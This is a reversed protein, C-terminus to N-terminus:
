HLKYTLITKSDSKTILELNKDADLKTLIAESTGYVPFNPIPKAQSDFLYVKKAQMDTTTVYIKDNLYFIKPNTYDGYELDVTKFRIQLKNENLTVLTKTTADISHGDTLGLQNTSINGKTNVQVLQGLTNTTTFKNQYLYIPNKSFRIKDKVVVRSAGRRNLIKLQEGAGFVIYDKSGLRFHKPQTLITGSRDKYNFGSVNKANTNYMLLNNAQTVLLRYDRKKDYDFVSLPQTIPDNFKLPFPGVDNGNRDLVYVRKSTAFVLQLRGNKYIDIQEIEGLINDQLKKKWLINGSSSILYLNNNSDQIAIDKTKNVHNKLVQPGIIIDSEISTNFNESITNLARRRKYKQIIGNIHAYDDEYIYQVVNADYGTLNTKFLDSLSESNKYIFMSSEDSLNEQINKFAESNVLTNNSLYDSLIQKLNDLSNSFVVFDDKAFFYSAENFSFLPKFQNAFFGPESFNYIDIERFSEEFAKNDITEIILDTDLSHLILANDILAIENSYTLFSTQSDIAINSSDKINKFLKSYDDFSISKLEKINYPAIRPSNTKQPLISKFNSLINNLTDKSSIVGNYNLSGSNQNIDIVAFEENSFESFLLDSYKTNNSKFIVSALSTENTTEILDFLDNPMDGNNLKTLLGLNNSAIFVDNITKYYFETSDIKTNIIESNSQRKGNNYSSSDAEFLKDKNSTLILFDTNNNLTELFSIYIPSPSNIKDLVSEVKKIDKIYLSFLIPNTELGIKFDNIANVKIILASTEPIFHYPKINKDYNKQCSVILTCVLVYLWFHKM